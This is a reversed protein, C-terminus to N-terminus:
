RCASVPGWAFIQQSDKGGPGNMTRAPQSSITTTQEDPSHAEHSCSWMQNLLTAIPRVQPLTFCGWVLISLRSPDNHLRQGARLRKATSMFSAQFFRMAERSCALFRRGADNCGDCIAARRQDCTNVVLTKLELYRICTDSM